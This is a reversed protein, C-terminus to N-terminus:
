IYIYTHTYIVYIHTYIRICKYIYTLIYICISTVKPVASQRPSARQDAFCIYYTHIYINIHVYICTLM